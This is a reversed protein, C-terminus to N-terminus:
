ALRFLSRHVLSALRFRDIDATDISGAGAKPRGREQVAVIM